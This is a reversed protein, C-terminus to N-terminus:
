LMEMRMAVEPLHNTNLYLARAVPSYKSLVYTFSDRIIQKYYTQDRKIADFSVLADICGQIHDVEHADKCASLDYTTHGTADTCSAKSTTPLRHVPFQCDTHKQDAQPRMQLPTSEPRNVDSEASLPTEM